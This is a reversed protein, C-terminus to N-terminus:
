VFSAKLIEPETQDDQQMQAEMVGWSTSGRWKQMEQRMVNESQLQTKRSEKSVHLMMDTFREEFFDLCEAWKSVLRKSEFIICHVDFSKAEGRLRMCGDCFEEIDIVGSDDEDILKFLLRTDSPSIELAELYTRLHQDTLFFEMEDMSIEGSNDMDIAKFVERIHEVKLERNRLNEQILLEKYHQASKMASEVFVSTVVNLVGFIAISIFCVFLVRFVPPLEVLPEMVLGWSYGDSMAMYLSLISRGLTGYFRLLNAPNEGQMEMLNSAGHNATDGSGDADIIDAMSGASDNPRMGAYHNTTGQTFCIAFSYIALFMLLMSWALTQVSAQMAFVMKRFDRFMRLARALRLMRIIRLLRIGRRLILGTEWSAQAEDSGVAIEACLDLVSCVVLFMDLINM